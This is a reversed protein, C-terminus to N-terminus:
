RTEPAVLSPAISLRYGIAPENVILTPHAPDAELKQRLGRVAVRLYDTHKEQAPGWVARLLHAHTLVRGRHKALEALIGFEKPTLRVPRGGRSVSRQFLDITVDGISVPQQPEDSGLDALGTLYRDLKAGAADIESLLERRADGERRLQRSADTIAKLPPRLDDGISALLASRVRDRERTRAFERADCELRSRELALAVQDLLSGLLEFQDAVVAPAGDDRALGAVALVTEGSRIPHFQWEVPLARDLGRGAPQGTDLVLGATAIDSPTLVVGAPSSALLHAPPGGVLVANGGFVKALEVTSAALVDEESACGLLRRALGAITANRQAHARAAEAERRVSAALQSTVLAVGFLVLITAVETPDNIRLSLRPATFFFNYALASAAAALLSPKRGGRIAAVIVAPLFLLDVASTGWRPAVVLGFLTVAAVMILAEIYRRLALVGATRHRAILHARRAPEDLPSPGIAGREKVDAIRLGCPFKIGAAGM